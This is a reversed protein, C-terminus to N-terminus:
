TPAPGALGIEFAAHGRRGLLARDADYHRGLLRGAPDLPAQQGGRVRKVRERAKEVWSTTSKKSSTKQQARAKGRQVKCQSGHGPPRM